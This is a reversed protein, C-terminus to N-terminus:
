LAKPHYEDDRGEQLPDTRMDLLKTLAWLMPLQIGGPDCICICYDDFLIENFNQIGHLTYKRFICSSLSKHKSVNEILGMECFYPNERQSLQSRFSLELDFTLNQLDKSSYSIILSPPFTTKPLVLVFANTVFLFSNFSPIVGNFDISPATPHQIEVERLMIEKREKREIKEEKRKFKADQRVREKEEYEKKEKEEKEKRLKEEKEREKKIESSKREELERKKIEERDRQDKEREKTMEKEFNEKKKERRQIRLREKEELDRM